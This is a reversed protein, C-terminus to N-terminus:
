TPREHEDVMAGIGQELSPYRFSFGSAVLGDPKVMGDTSMLEVAGAGAILAVIWAPLHRPPRSGLRKAIANFFTESTSGGPHAAVFSRGAIAKGLGALHALARAADEVHIVPLRNKGSGIIPLRGKRLGPLIKSAFAKGPGYVVGFYVFVADVGLEHIVAHVKVGIRGGGVPPMRLTATDDMTGESSAALEDCGGVSLYLPRAGPDIDRLAGCVARTGRVRTVALAEISRRTIRSPLAPQVLDIVVDVGLLAAKWPTVDLVDGLVPEGGLARVSEAGGQRRVLGRVRHGAATAERVTTQGLYGAAGLVLITAM